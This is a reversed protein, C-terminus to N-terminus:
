CARALNRYLTARSVGLMEAIREATLERREMLERGLAIKDPSMSPKRTPLTGGHRVRAAALGEITRERIISSEWEALASLIHFLLTGNASTTDIDGQDLARVGVGRDILLKMVDIVNQVSRGIRDLKTILLTDGKRLQALCKDWEPRSANKGSAGQDAFVHECGNDRLRQVQNESHQRDTSVRAYGFVTMAM